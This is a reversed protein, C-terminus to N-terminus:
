GQGTVEPKVTSHTLKYLYEQLFRPRDNFRGFAVYEGTGESSVSRRRQNCTQGM